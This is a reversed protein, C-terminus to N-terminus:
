PRSTRRSAMSATAEGSLTKLWLLESLLSIVTWGVYHPWYTRLEHPLSLGLLLLAVADVAVLYAVLKRSV